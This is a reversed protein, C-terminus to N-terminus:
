EHFTDLNIAAGRTAGPKPPGLKSDGANIQKPPPPAVSNPASGDYSDLNIVGKGKPGSMTMFTFKCQRAAAM